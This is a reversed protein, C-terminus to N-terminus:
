DPARIEVCVNDKDARTFNFLVTYQTKAGTTLEETEDTRFIAHARDTEPALARARTLADDLSAAFEFPTIAYVAVDHYERM